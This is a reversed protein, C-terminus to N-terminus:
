LPELYGQFSSVNNAHNACFSRMIRIYYINERRGNEQKV